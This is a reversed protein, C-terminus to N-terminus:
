PESTKLAVRLNEVMHDTFARIRPTDRLEPLTLVWLDRSAFPDLPGVRVLTPDADGQICALFQVGVGAAVLEHMAAAGVDVRMAITAGPAHTALWGDLWDMGLREDWHIWPHTLLGFGSGAFLGRFCLRGNRARHRAAGSGDTQCM